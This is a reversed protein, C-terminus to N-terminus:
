KHRYTLVEVNHASYVVHMEFHKGVMLWQDGSIHHADSPTLSWVRRLATAPTEGPYRALLGLAHKSFSGFQADFQFQQLQQPTMMNDGIGKMEM